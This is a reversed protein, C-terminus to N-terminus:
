GSRRRLSGHQPEKKQPQEATSQGEPEKIGSRLYYPCPRMTTTKESRVPKEEAAGHGRSGTIKTERARDSQIRAGRRSEEKPPSFRRM